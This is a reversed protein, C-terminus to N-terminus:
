AGREQVVQLLNQIAELIEQTTVDTAVVCKGIKVPVIFNRTGTRNKKDAATLDLLRKASATFRPLTGFRDIMREIRQADKITLASRTVALRIAAIMGWAVAEGHLLIRYQTASEIAHGITHGLNLLMRQGSEREDASVIKAKIRISARIAYSLADLDGRLMADANKELWAFLAADGLIAAKISEMIGARLERPPLTALLQPDVIVTAPQHFSGILNKGVRLNVGTKGGVSSDIQALYTTPIQVFPIGRMYIAALFGTLDGVVGGGFAILLSDRRAGAQVLEEALKEVHSLRKYREGAPLLLVCPTEKSSPFSALFQQHWLAWKEPSTVVFLKGAALGTRRLQASLTQLLGQGVRVTYNGGATHVPIGATQTSIRSM